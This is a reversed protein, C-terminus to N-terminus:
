ASWATRVLPEAVGDVLEVHGIRSPLVFRLRGHEVKKDRQMAELLTDVELAGIETPLNLQRLLNHQRETVSADIRGLAEALRSACLMGVAVAEGHLFVGYGAVAEIAHCFTHGYNLVARQGTLEREDAAVVDAQTSM